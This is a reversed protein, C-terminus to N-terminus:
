QKIIKDEIKKAIKFIGYMLKYIYKLIKKEIYKIRIMDIITCVFYIILVSLIAHVILFPSDYYGTNNLVDKWLYQRMIDSNAHILLVGFASAAVRNVIENHKININKFLLFLSLGGLFPLIKNADQVMFYYNQYGFKVGIFDVVIISMWMLGISIVGITVAIKRSNFIQSPYIRIYAGVLYIICLWGIFNFNDNFVSIISYTFLLLGMLRIYMKQNLKLILINLFPILLYLCLMTSVYYKDVYYSYPFITQAVLRPTLEVYGTLLFIATIIINYFLLEAWIKLVKEPKLKKGAMFYGTILTFCNIGMKGGFGFFQLFVMNGTIHNMDYMSEMGSNVVYHHALIMLMAIIRFLELNSDREKNRGVVATAKKQKIM